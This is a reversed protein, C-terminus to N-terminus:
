ALEELAPIWFEKVVRNIDYGLAFERARQKLEPWDIQEDDSNWTLKGNKLAYAKEYAQYIETVSPCKWWAGHGANWYKQGGVKWGAGCIESMASHDTVVVPTGCAQAEIIPLGFGEGYSCNSLLDLIGYWRAIEGSSTLGAATLYQDGFQVAEEPLGLDGKLVDLDAGQRTGKRTHILLRAEPHEDHFLKFAQLQEGFGKRVPDQNASNMGIVFCDTFGANERVEDRDPNASYLTTDIGHPVYVPAFEELAKMGHKSMAIVRSGAQTLVRYDLRGLPQCDVPMWHALNMGQQRMDSLKVPDLVWADMLTIALESQTYQYHGLMLDQAWPDEPSGPYVTISPDGWKLPTGSLGFFSAIAVEHGLEILKPVVTATQTGYGSGCWPANSYWLLKV